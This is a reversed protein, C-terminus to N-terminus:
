SWGAFHDYGAQELALPNGAGDVLRLGPTAEIIGIQTYPVPLAALEGVRRPSVTFCLEYDDGGTLAFRHAQPISSMRQMSPSLPLSDVNVRAGVGSRELIHGLDAALGDSVDIAASALGRLARGAAVRPTPRHLRSRVHATDADTGSLEGNVCALGAGGDGLTGTVFILDGTRAGSRRLAEHPPVWGHLQLTIVRPGRVTDGGVLEVGHEQALMFLGAAFESLWGEDADPLSLSLTAWAPQAGMAALDSLNVALTKHGLDRPTTASPFHRGEVLTDMTVALAMGAPVSLLACDDGIGLLTEPRRVPQQTFFRQILEFEGLPM